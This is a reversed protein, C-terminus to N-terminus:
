ALANVYDKQYDQNNRIVAFMRYVLKVRVANLVSMKNKGEAVKREYYEHLEGKCRIAVVLAAMHLLAKISKDARQSVRNQSLISSGSSYSFPAAGAHCCFKRADTFDTFCKTAVIMKVATKDGIGEATCLRKHQEYLTESSGIAEKIEKEAQCISKELGRILEKLCASKQRYDKKCMFREQDTLQGQYKSKDGAHMDREGALQQLSTINEQPQNYLRAKDQFRFDCAATKRADLCDNRGRQMGSGYKIQAPNELRLDINLDRCACCLPRIYQGTYGACTLVDSTEARAKKM